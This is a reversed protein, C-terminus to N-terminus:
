MSPKFLLKDISGPLHLDTAKVVRITIGIRTKDSPRVGHQYASGINVLLSNNKPKYIFGRDDWFEGGNGDVSAYFTASYTPYKFVDMVYAAGDVHPWLEHGAELLNFVGRLAIWEGNYNSFPAVKLIETKLYKVAPHMIRSYHRSAWEAITDNTQDYYGQLFPLYWLLHYPRQEVTSKIDYSKDGYSIVRGESNSIIDDKSNDLYSCVSQYINKDLFNQHIWVDDPDVLRSLKIM